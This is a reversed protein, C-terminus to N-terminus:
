LVGAERLTEEYAAVAEMPSKARAVRARHQEYLQSDLAVHELLLRRLRQIPHRAAESRAAPEAELDRRRRAM